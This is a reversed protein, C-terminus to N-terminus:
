RGVARDHRARRARLGALALGTALAAAGLASLGPVEAAPSFTTPSWYNGTMVLVCLLSLTDEYYNEDSVRAVDYLDNLWQQQSPANMAAPGLPAAFATTSYNSGPLPTGDLEYGARVLAPDSQSAAQAWLSIKRVQDRSTPDDNLLADIALRLPVRTSNYYYDGDWDSELFNADAPRLTPDSASVPELFDPVLGTAPAYTSQVFGLTSQVAGRVEDWASTGSAGAFARFHDPLFDSMRPTRESYSSGSPNVWDGLMPLRNTPGIASALQGAIVSLAHASYDFRGADGWQRAALLLAYAIDADADFASDNGGPDLSEDAPVWWDMLRADIESPHDLAFEFLGDFIERADPDHGAFLAALILGYGQAESVTPASPERGRRVRYRPHGDAEVGAQSLYRSKWADYLARADDDREAQTRHDPLLSGASYAVHQPFPHHPAAIAAGDALVLTLLGGLLV